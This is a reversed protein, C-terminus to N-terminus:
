YYYLIFINGICVHLPRLSMISKTLIFDM